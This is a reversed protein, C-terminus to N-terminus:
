IAPPRPHEHASNLIIYDYRPMEAMRFRLCLNSVMLAVDSQKISILVKWGLYTTSAACPYLLNM